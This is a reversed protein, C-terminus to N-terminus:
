NHRRKILVATAGLMLTIGSLYFITTGVGGTSPLLTGSTNVIEGNVVNSVVSFDGTSTVTPVNDTYSAQITFDMPDAVNYGSPAETETLTYKTADDLGIIEFVGTADTTITGNTNNVATDVPYYTNTDVGDHDLTIDGQANSLKFTAGALLNEQAVSNAYKTFKARFTYSYVEDSDEGTEGWEDPKEFEDANTPDDEPADEPNKTPDSAQAFPNNSYILTVKNMDRGDDFVIAEENLTASYEIQIYSNGAKILEELKAQSVTVMYSKDNYIKISYDTGETLTANLESKVTISNSILDLGESMVDYIKYVYADDYGAISLSTPLTSKIRFKVEDGIQHDGVDGWTGLENHEIEKDITPQASKINMTNNGPITVLMGSSIVSDKYDATTELVLYYGVSLDESTYLQEESTGTKTSMKSTATINEDDIFKKLERTLAQLDDNDYGELMSAVETVSKGTFDTFTSFDSVIDTYTISEDLGVTASLVKYLSFEKNSIDVGTTAVSNSITLKYNTTANVTAMMSFMMLASLMISIIRKKM